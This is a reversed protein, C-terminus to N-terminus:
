IVTAPTNQNLIVVRDGQKVTDAWATVLADVKQGLERFSLATDFYWLAVADPRAAVNAEFADLPLAPDIAFDPGIGPAYLRVWRRDDTSREDNSAGDSPRTESMTM